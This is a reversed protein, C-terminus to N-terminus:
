RVSLSAAFGERFTPYKCRYGLEIKLRTNSVRKNAAARKRARGKGEGIESSAQLEKQLKLNPTERSNPTQVKSNESLWSFLDQQSVPEDDTVNYIKGAEGKELAAMIAGVVDDRHVMNIIREGSGEIEGEADRFQKLWYERGPGYIGSVRLIVAPFQQERAAALLTNETEVLIRGTESEPTTSSAETVVSGDNQGYVGTSSTYVFKQPPPKSLWNLLNRTGDLYVRRYDELTGRSSSVCNVVWDWDAPLRLLSNLNTIAAEIDRIGATILGPKNRATRSLASVEHGRRALDVALPLGVYGPGIILVRMGCSLLSHQMPFTLSLDSKGVMEM